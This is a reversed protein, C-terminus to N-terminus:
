PVFGDSLLCLTKGSTGSLLSMPRPPWRLFYRRMTVVIYRGLMEAYNSYFTMHGNYFSIIMLIIAILSSCIFQNMKKAAAGEEPKPIVVDLAVAALWHLLGQLFTVRSTLYEFEHNHNLFGMASHYHIGAHLGAPSDGHSLLMTGTVTTVFICVIEMAFSSLLLARCTKKSLRVWKPDTSCPALDGRTQSLTALVAGAVLAAPAGLNSCWEFAEMALTDDSILDQASELSDTILDEMSYSKLPKIIHHHSSPPAGIRGVAPFGPAFAVVNSQLLIIGFVALHKMNLSQHEHLFRQLSLRKDCAM